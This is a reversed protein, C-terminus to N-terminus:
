VRRRERLLPSYADGLRATRVRAVEGVEHSHRYHASALARAHGARREPLEMARVQQLRPPRAEVELQLSVQRDEAVLVARAHEAPHAGLEAVAADVDDRRGHAALRLVPGAGARDNDDGGVARHRAVHHVQNDRGGAEVGAAGYAELEGSISAASYRRAM